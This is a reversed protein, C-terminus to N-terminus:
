RALPRIWPCTVRLFTRVLFARATRTGPGALLVDMGARVRAAKLVSAPLERSATPMAARAPTKMAARAALEMAARAAVVAAAKAMVLAQEVASM